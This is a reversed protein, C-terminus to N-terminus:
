AARGLLKRAVGAMVQRDVRTNPDKMARALLSPCLLLLLPSSLDQQQAVSKLQKLEARTVGTGKLAERLLRSPSGVPAAAAAPSSGNGARANRIVVLVGLLGAIVAVGAILPRLDAPKDINEGVSRFVQDITPRPPSSADPATAGADQARAFSSMALMLILTLLAIMSLTVAPGPQRSSSEVEEILRQRAISPFGASLEDDSIPSQVITEADPADAHPNSDSVPKRGMEPLLLEVSAIIADITQWETPVADQAAAAQLAPTAKAGEEGVPLPSPHPRAPDPDVESFAPQVAAPTPATAPDSNRGEGLGRGARSLAEAHEVAEFAREAVETDRVEARLTEAQDTPAAANTDIARMIPTQRVAATADAVVRRVSEPANAVDRGRRGRTPQQQLARAIMENLSQIRGAAGGASGATAM